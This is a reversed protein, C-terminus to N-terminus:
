PLYQKFDDKTIVWEVLGTKPNPAPARALQGNISIELAGVKSKAYRLSLSSQPAFDKTEDAGLTFDSAGEEDVRTGIWVREGKTKVQVRLGSASAPSAGSVNQGQPQPAGTSSPQSNRVVDNSSPPAAGGTGQQQQEVPNETRRYFHLGAYVGLILIGAVIASLLATVLPSRNSDGDMYIRSRTPSTAVEDFSEGRERSTREYAELAEREDFNIHRVYAKIFSKNFIGGPLNKYNDAEIAELYRMSIRTHDSIERLTVGRAERARRLTAGLPASSAQQGESNQDSPTSSVRYNESSEKSSKASSRRRLKAPPKRRRADRM